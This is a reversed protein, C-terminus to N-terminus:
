FNNIQYLLMYPIFKNIIKEIEENKEIKKKMEQSISKDKKLLDTNCEEITNILIEINSNVLNLRKVIDIDFEDEKMKGLNKILKGFKKRLKNFKSKEIKILKDM